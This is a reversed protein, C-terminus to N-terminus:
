PYISFYEYQVFIEYIILKIHTLGALRQVTLSTLFMLLRDSAQLPAVTDRRVDSVCQKSNM